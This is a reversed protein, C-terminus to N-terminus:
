KGGFLQPYLRSALAGLVALTQGAIAIWFGAPNDGRTIRHDVLIRRFWIEGTVVQGIVAAAAITMISAFGPTM